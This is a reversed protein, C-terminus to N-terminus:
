ALALLHLSMRSHASTRESPTPRPMSGTKASPWASKSAERCRAPTSMWPMIHCRLAERRSRQPGGCRQRSSCFAKEGWPLNRKSTSVMGLTQPIGSLGNSTNMTALELSRGRGFSVGCTLPLSALPQRRAKSRPLLSMLVTATFSLSTNDLLSVSHSTVLGSGWYWQSLIRVAMFSVAASRGLTSAMPPLAVPVMEPSLSAVHHSM